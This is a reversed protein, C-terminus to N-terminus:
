QSRRANGGAFIGAENERYKAFDRLSTLAHNMIVLTKLPKHNASAKCETLVLAAQFFALSPLFSESPRRIIHNTRM